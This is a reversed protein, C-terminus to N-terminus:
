GSIFNCAGYGALVLLLTIIRKNCISSETPKIVSMDIGISGVDFVWWGRPM